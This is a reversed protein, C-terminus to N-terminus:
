WSELTNVVTSIQDEPTSAGATVGVTKVSEFWEKKLEEASEIHYARVGTSKCIEYLRTTNSSNRGGLVIMVDVQSSLLEAAEQRHETATCITRKIQSKIGREELKALLEELAKHTQTTQSVVGLELPLEDPLDNASSVVLPKGGAQIIYATMSQVEPHGEEGLVIVTNGGQALEAAGSQARAVFPCTADILTFGHELVAERLQPTIGHSRVIVSEGCKVEELEEVPRVGKEALEKVVTPNHILSGLTVAPEKQSITEYALDLARQVGYCAGSFESQIVKM